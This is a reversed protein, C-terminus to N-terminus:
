VPSAIDFEYSLRGPAFQEVAPVVINEDAAAAAAAATNAVIGYVARALSSQFTMKVVAAAAAKEIPKGAKTATPADSFFLFSFLFYFSHKTFADSFSPLFFSLFFFFSLCFFSHTNPLLPLVLLISLLSMRSQVWRGHAFKCVDRTCLGRKFDGCQNPLQKAAAASSSLSSSSSSSSSSAAAADLQQDLLGDTAADRDDRLRQLLAFDLGKVLHTHEL